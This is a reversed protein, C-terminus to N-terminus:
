NDNVTTESPKLWLSRLSRLTLSSLYSYNRYLRM